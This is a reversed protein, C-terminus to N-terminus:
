YIFGYGLWQSLYLSAKHIDCITFNQIEEVSLTSATLSSLWVQWMHEPNEGKKHFSSISALHSSPSFSYEDLSRLDGDCAGVLSDPWCKSLTCTMRLFKTNVKNVIKCRIQFFIYIFLKKWALLHLHESKVRYIKWSCEVRNKRLIVHTSTTMQLGQFETM